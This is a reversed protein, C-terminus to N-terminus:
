TIAKELTLDSELQLKESLASDCLGVVIRDRIMEERLQGYNCHESLSHLSTIFDDVSEGEQQRRQNFRAREFIINRKKVFYGHFKELVTEYSQLQEESLSFSRLIDEAADGM